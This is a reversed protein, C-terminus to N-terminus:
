VIKAEWGYNASLVGTIYINTGDATASQYPPCGLDIPWLIIRNPTTALGHAITQQAGTGVSNGSNETVYGENRQVVSHVGVKILATTTNEISNDAIVNYDAGTLELIGYDQTPSVQNDFIINGEVRAYQVHHLGIAAGNTTNKKNCSIENGRILHHNITSNSSAIIGYAQCYSVHNGEIITGNAASYIGNAGGLLIYNDTVSVDAAGVAIADGVSNLVHNGRIRSRYAGAEWARISMGACNWMWNDEICAPGAVDVYNTPASASCEFYCGRVTSKDAECHDLRISKYTDNEFICGEIMIDTSVEPTTTGSIHFSEITSATGCLYPLCDRIRLGWIAFGYIAHGTITVFIVREITLHTVTNANIGDGTGSTSGLQIDQIIINAIRGSTGDISFINFSGAKTLTTGVGEGRVTVRDKNIVLPADVTYAGNCFHILGGASTMDAIIAAFVTSLTASSTLIAGTTGRKAYYTSGSKWIIYSAPDPDFQKTIYGDKDIKFVDTGNNQEVVLLDATQGSAGTIRHTITGTTAGTQHVEGTHTIDGTITEDGTHTLDGDAAIKFKDTGDNQEVVLIDASQGSAGAIKLTVAAPTDGTIAMEGTYAMTGTLTLNGTVIVNGNADVVFRDTGNYTEVVFLNETQGNAGRVRETIVNPDDSLITPM